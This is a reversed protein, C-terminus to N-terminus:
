LSKSKLFDAAVDAPRRHKVDVEYNLKRMEDSSIKGSLEKLADSLGSFRSLSESRVVISAQYPPFVHKDDQLVKIDATSLIGDTMNGAAMSVQKQELAPYLLGLDMSKQSATWHIHYGANLAGFGDPRQLFEYGAGLVFGETDRGADSLTELHRRRADDGRVSMAFSDDFGLPDLWDLQMAAYGSKVRELVAAPDTSGGQKLVNTFATGTYEPYLDIDGKLLAQHALLTGGLDLKREIPQKLRHELHQAILEGLVVQETFNKSAVVVRDRKSCGAAIMAACTLLSCITKRDM